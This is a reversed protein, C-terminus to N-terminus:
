TFVRPGIRKNNTPSNAFVSPWGDDDFVIKDILLRRASRDSGTYAHYLLWYDGADDIAIDSHGPAIFHNNGIIVNAGVNGSLMSRGRNDVYPGLISESRGVKVHYTFAGTCCQGSSLFMYYYDGFKHIDVAEFTSVDFGHESGYGALHVKNNSAGELGDKLSLGDASLEVMYIGRFSGWSLYVRDDEIFVDPDISNEVGIESSDFLKGHDTWSGEPHPASAYGIGPNEDDWVSLSYYMVFLDGIKVIDPAWASAWPNANWNPRPFITYPEAFKEWNVLDTSKIGKLGTSFAYYINEHRIVTPDAFDEPFVPNEYYTDAFTPQKESTSSDISSESPTTSAGCSSLILALAATFVTRAKM